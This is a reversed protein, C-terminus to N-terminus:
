SRQGKFFRGIGVYAFAAVFWLSILSRTPTGFLFGPSGAAQNALSGDGSMDTVAATEDVQDTAFYGDYTM